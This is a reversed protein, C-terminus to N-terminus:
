LGAHGIIQAPPEAPFSRQRTGVNTEMHIQRMRFHQLLRTNTSIGIAHKPIATINAGHVLKNSKSCKPGLSTQTTKQKIQQM